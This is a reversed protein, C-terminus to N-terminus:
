KEFGNRVSIIKKVAWDVYTDCLNRPPTGIRHAGEQPAKGDDMAKLSSCRVSGWDDTFNQLFLKIAERSKTRQAKFEDIQESGTTGFLLSLSMVAGSVAGCIEGFGAVGGGLNSAVKMCSDSFGPLPRDRHVRIVVSEACNFSRGDKEEM